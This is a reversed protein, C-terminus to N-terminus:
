SKAHAFAVGCADRMEAFGYLADLTVKVGLLDTDYSATLRLVLGSQPDRMAMQRVGPARNVPLARMALVGFEPTGAISTAGVGSSPVLQSMYIDFGYARGISGERVAAPQSNAFYSELNSDGLLDVEGAPGVTVFRGAMPARNDNLQQRIALLSTRSAATGPTGVISSFGSYLGSVDSEIKEALAVAAQRTHVDVVGNGMAAQAAAPDEVVFSVEEHTNLTVQVSSSSPNQLTVPNGATKSNTTFTGPVPVNLVDGTQFTAIDTDKTIQRAIVIEGRLVELAQNAWIEPIFTDLNGAGSANANLTDSM